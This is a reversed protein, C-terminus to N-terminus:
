LHRGLFLLRRDQYTREAAYQFGNRQYFRVNRAAKATVVHVGGVSRDRLDEAFAQILRGGIGQCRYEPRCNIHLHAPYAAHLDAFLAFGAHHALCSAAARSDSCGMLYGALRNEMTRAVYILNAEQYRYYDTWHAIFAATDAARALRQRPASLLLIDAIDAWDGAAGEALKEIRCHNASM